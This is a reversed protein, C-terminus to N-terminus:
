IDRSISRRWWWWRVVYGRSSPHVSAVDNTSALPSRHYSIIFAHFTLYPRTTYLSCLKGDCAVVVGTEKGGGRVIFCRSNHIVTLEGIRISMSAGTCSILHFSTVSISVSVSAACSLSTHNHIIGSSRKRSSNPLLFYCEKSKSSM